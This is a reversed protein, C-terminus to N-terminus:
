KRRRWTTIISYLRSTHDVALIILLPYVPMMFKQIGGSLVTLYILYMMSLGYIIALNHYKKLKLMKKRFFTIGLVVVLPIIPVWHSERALVKASDLYYGTFIVRWINGILVPTGTFWALMWKKHRLFEIMSPHYFFFSTHSLLYVIPVMFSALIYQKLFLKQYKVLIVTMFMYVIVFAPFFRTSFAMGWFLFSPYF